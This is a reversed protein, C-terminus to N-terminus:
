TWWPACTAFGTGFNCCGAGPSNVCAPSLASASSCTGTGTACAGCLQRVIAHQPANGNPLHHPQLSFRQRDHLLVATLVSAGLSPPSPRTSMRLSAWFIAPTSTRTCPGARGWRCFTTNLNIADLHALGVTIFPYQGNVVGFQTLAILLLTQM